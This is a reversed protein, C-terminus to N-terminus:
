SRTSVSLAGALGKLAEFAPTIDQAQRIELRHVELGLTKATVQAENMELVAAPAGLNVM